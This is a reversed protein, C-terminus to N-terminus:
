ATQILRCQSSPKFGPRFPFLGTNMGQSPRWSPWAMWGTAPISHGSSILGREEAWTQSSVLVERGQGVHGWVARRRRPLRAGGSVGADMEREQGSEQDRLLIGTGLEHNICTELQSLHARARWGTNQKRNQMVWLQEFVQMSFLGWMGM